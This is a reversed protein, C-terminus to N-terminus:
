QSYENNLLTYLKNCVYICVLLRNLKIFRIFLEEIITQFKKNARLNAIM